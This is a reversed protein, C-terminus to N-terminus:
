RKIVEGYNILVDRYGNSIVYDDYYIYDYGEPRYDINDVVKDSVEYKGNVENVSLVKYDYDFERAQCIVNDIRDLKEWHKEIHIEGDSTKEHESVEAEYYNQPVDELESIAVINNDELYDYFEKNSIRDFEKTITECSMMFSSNILLTAALAYCKLNKIKM